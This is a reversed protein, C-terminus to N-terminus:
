RSLGDKSEENIAEVKNGPLFEFTLVHWAALEEFYRRDVQAYELVYKAATKNHFFLEKPFILVIVFLLFAWTGCPTYFFWGIALMLIAAAVIFALPHRRLQYNFPLSDALLSAARECVVCRVQGQIRLRNYEDFSMLQAQDSYQLSM